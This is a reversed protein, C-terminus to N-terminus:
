RRPQLRCSGAARRLCTLGVILGVMPIGVPVLRPLPVGARAALDSLTEYSGAAGYGALGLGLVAAAALAWRQGRSLRLVEVTNPM